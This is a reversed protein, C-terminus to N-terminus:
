MPLEDPDNDRTLWGARWLNAVKPERHPCDTEFRRQGRAIYGQCWAAPKDPFERQVYDLDLHRPLKNADDAPPERNEPDDSIGRAEPAISKAGSRRLFAPIDGGDEAEGTQPDHQVAAGAADKPGAQSPEPAAKTKPASSPRAAITAARTAAREEDTTPNMTGMPKDGPFDEAASMAAGAISTSVTEPAPKREDAPKPELVVKPPPDKDPQNMLRDRNEQFEKIRAAEDAAKTDEAPKDQAFNELKGGGAPKGDLPWVEDATTMGEQIAQIEAIIKAVTKADWVAAALGYIKEVRPIDVGLEPLRELVRTRYKPLEKEVRGVIAVKAEAMAFDAFTGLSNVVCNRIAKSAGIQLAIDMARDAQMGQGSGQSKRQQFPRLYEFGTEFDIFRAHLIWHTGIDELRDVGVSCNGYLRALDNALKVSPGEITTKGDPRKSQKDKVDWSYFWSEGAAAAFTRLSQLIVAPNRKVAVAQAGVPRMQVMHALEGRTQVNGQDELADAFAAMVSNNDDTMREM